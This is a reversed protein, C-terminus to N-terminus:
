GLVLWKIPSADFCTDDFTTSPKPSPLVSWLHDAPNDLVQMEQLRSILVSHLDWSRADFLAEEKIRQIPPLSEDREHEGEKNGERSKCSTWEMEMQSASEQDKLSVYLCMVQNIILGAIGLCVFFYCWWKWLNKLSIDIM